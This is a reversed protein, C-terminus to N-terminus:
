VIIVKDKKKRDFGSMAMDTGDIFYAFMQNLFQQLQLGKSNIVLVSTFTASMLGFLKINQIYRLFLPIGGRASIKDNTVGLKTIKSSM